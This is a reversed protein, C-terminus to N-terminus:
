SFQRHLENRWKSISLKVEQKNEIIRIILRKDGTYSFFVKGQETPHRNVRSVMNKVRYFGKVTVCGWRNSSPMLKMSIIAGYFLNEKSL